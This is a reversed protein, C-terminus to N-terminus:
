QGKAVRAKLLSKSKTDRARHSIGYYRNDCRTGKRPWKVWPDSQLSFCPALHEAKSVSLEQLWSHSPSAMWIDTKQAPASSTASRPPCYHTNRLLFCM